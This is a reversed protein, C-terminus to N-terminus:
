VGIFGLPVDATILPRLGAAIYLTRTLASNELVTRFSGCYGGPVLRRSPSRDSIWTASTYRRLNFIKKQVHKDVLSTKPQIWPFQTNVITIFVSPVLQWM